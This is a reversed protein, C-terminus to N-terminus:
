YADRPEPNNTEREQQQMLSRMVEPLGPHLMEIVGRIAETEDELEHVKDILCALIEAMAARYKAFDDPM